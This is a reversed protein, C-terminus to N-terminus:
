CTAYHPSNKDHTFFSVKHQIETNGQSNQTKKEAQAKQM